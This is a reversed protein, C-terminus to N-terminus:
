NGIAKSNANLEANLQRQQVKTIHGGNTRADAREQALTARDSARLAHAQAGTLDGERREHTIRHNQRQIRDNVQDRRPHHADWRAGATAGTSLMLCSIGLLALSTKRPVSM